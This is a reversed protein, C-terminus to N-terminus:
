RESVLLNTPMANEARREVAECFPSHKMSLLVFPALEILHKNQEINTETRASAHRLYYIMSNLKM